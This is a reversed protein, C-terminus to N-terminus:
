NACKKCIGMFYVQTEYSSHDPYGKFKPTDSEELPVNFIAGCSKCRFHAHLESCADYRVNKEDIFLTKIANKDALLKLTNYVTAKSLTPMSSILDTFIQDASSHHHDILYQLIATRHVSPSIQYQRLYHHVEQINM